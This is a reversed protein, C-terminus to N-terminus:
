GGYMPKRKYQGNEVSGYILTTPSGLPKNEYLFESLWKTIEDFSKQQGKITGTKSSLEIRAGNETIRVTCRTDDEGLIAEGDTKAGKFQFFMKPSFPVGICSTWEIYVNGGIVVVPVSGRFAHFSEKYTKGTFADEFSEDLTEM